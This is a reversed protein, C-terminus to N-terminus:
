EQIIFLSEFEDAMDEYINELLKRIENMRQIRTGGETTSVSNTVNTIYGDGTVSTTTQPTDNFKTENTSRIPDMLQVSNVNFLGTLYKFNDFKSVYWSYIRSIIDKNAAQLESFTPDTTSYLDVEITNFASNYYRPKLYKKWFTNTVADTWPTDTTNFTYGSAANLWGIFTLTSPIPGKESTTQIMDDITIYKQLRM